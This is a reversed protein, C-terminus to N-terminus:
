KYNVKYGGKVKVVRGKIPTGAPRPRELHKKAKVADKKRTYFGYESSM